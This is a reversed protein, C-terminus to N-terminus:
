GARHSDEPGHDWYALWKGDASFHLEPGVPHAKAILVPELQDRLHRVFLQTNTGVFAISHGDPSVAIRLGAGGTIAIGPPPEVQFRIPTPPAGHAARWWGTSAGIVGVTMVRVTVLAGYTLRTPVRTIARTVAPIGRGELADAFERAWAYRDAPLKELARAIAADINEPVAPRTERVYRPPDTLLRSIVAQATTGTHPPEGVLMEYIMAGIAFVDSRADISRDAM